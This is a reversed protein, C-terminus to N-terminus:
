RTVQTFMDLPGLKGSKLHFSLPERDLSVTRAMGPADFPGSQLARVGLHDLIAGSTEGGAVLFRRVGQQRLGVAIRGLAVEVAEAARRRGFREQAAAVQDPPSTTAVTVPGDDLHQRSWALAREVTEEGAMIEEVTLRLVPRHREFDRVQADTREACSGALVAAPGEVRPLAPSEPPGIEGRARWIAPYYVAVSSGGTMLPWDVTAEALVQLDAEGTADCIAYRVGAARLAAVRAQVSFAGGRYDLNRILGVPVPTQAQLVRVLDPERMPTLPDFRKPSRSVLADNVFLHGRYVTREVEPFAPCFGTFEAGTEAALLDALPGINGRPTSDFTACYKYFIQRPALPRLVDLAARVRKLAEAKTVTRVKLGFVPAPCGEADEARALGTLVRAPVGASVLYSALEVAGTLDDAIGAFRIAM